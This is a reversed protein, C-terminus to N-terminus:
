PRFPLSLLQVLKLAHPDRFQKLGIDVGEAGLRPAARYTGCCRDWVSLNFSFNSNTEWPDNSHHIRHMEPTVLVQRLWTEWRAPLVVNGHNFLSTGNLIIEFVIVGAPSAGLLLVVAIKYFVSIAIEIPHFRVGTTADLALDSHHVRHLRWLWPIEHFVRHQVYIAFDLFVITFVVAVAAPIGLWNLVGWSYTQALLASAYVLVGITLNVLLVDLM